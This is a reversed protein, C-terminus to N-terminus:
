SSTKAEIRRIAKLSSSIQDAVLKKGALNLTDTWGTAKATKLAGTKGNKWRDPIEFFASDQRAADLDACIDQVTHRSRWSNSTRWSPDRKEVIKAIAKHKETDAAFGGRHRGARNPENSAVDAANRPQAPPHGVAQFTQEPLQNTGDRRPESEVTPQPSPVGGAPPNFEGGHQKSELLQIFTQEAIGNPGFAWIFNLLAADRDSSERLKCAEIKVVDETDKDVRAVHERLRQSRDEPPSGSGILVVWFDRLRGVILENTHTTLDNPAVSAKEHFQRLREADFEKLKKRAHPALPLNLYDLEDM